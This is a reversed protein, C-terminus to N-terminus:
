QTRQCQETKEAAKDQREGRHEAGQNQPKPCRLALESHSSPRSSTTSPVPQGRPWHMKNPCNESFDAWWIPENRENRLLEEASWILDFSEQTCANLAQVWLLCISPCWPSPSCGDHHDVVVILVPSPSLRGFVWGMRNLLLWIASTLTIDSLVSSDHREWCGCIDGRWLGPHLFLEDMMDACRTRPQRARCQPFNQLAPLLTCPHCM